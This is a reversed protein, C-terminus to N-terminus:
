KEINRFFFFNCFERFDVSPGPENFLRYQSIDPGFDIHLYLYLAPGLMLTMSKESNMVVFCLNELRRWCKRDIIGANELAKVSAPEAIPRSWVIPM